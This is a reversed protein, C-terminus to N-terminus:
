AVRGELAHVRASLEQVAKILPAILEEYGITMKDGGGKLSHNQLGGFDTGMDHMVAQVEQAILGHHFRLRKKSGDKDLQLSTLHQTDPDIHEQRYDERFDWRFDRPRLREIFTLGLQTDRVDAKDRADSRTQVTGYVHTTTSSDGLQVQNNGSIVGRINAGLVSCNSYNVSAGDRVNSFYGCITNNSQSTIGVGSSIGVITNNVATTMDGCNNSGVLCNGNGSTLNQGTFSGVAVNYGGSTNSRHVGHGVAVSANNAFASYGIVVSQNGGTVSANGTLNLTGAPSANTTFLRAAGVGLVGGDFTLNQEGNLADAAATCTVVRNDAQNSVSVGSAPPPYGANNILVVGEINKVFLTQDGPTYNFEGDTTFKQADDSTDRFPILGQTVNATNENSMGVLGGEMNVVGLFPGAAGTGAVTGLFSMKVLSAFFFALM